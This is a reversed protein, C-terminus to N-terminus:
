PSTALAGAEYNIWERAHNESTLCVVGFTSEDLQEEIVEWGVTGKEIDVDSMFPNAGYVVNQLWDRLATAVVRSRPGSWSIFVKM